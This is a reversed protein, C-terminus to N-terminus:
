LRPPSPAAYPAEGEDVSFVQQGLHLAYLGAKEKEAVESFLNKRLRQWSFSKGWDVSGDFKKNLLEGEKRYIVLGPFVFLAVFLLVAMVLLRHVNQRRKTKTQSRRFAGRIEFENAKRIESVNKDQAIDESAASLLNALTGRESVEQALSAKASAEKASSAQAAASGGANTDEVLSFDEEQEEKEGTLLSAQLSLPMAFSPMRPARLEPIADGQSQLALQESPLYEIRITNDIDGGSKMTESLMDKPHAFLLSSADETEALKEAFLKSINSGSGGGFVPVRPPQTSTKSEETRRSAEVGPLFIGPRTPESTDTRQIPEGFYAFPDDEEVPPSSAVQLPHLPAMQVPHLPTMQAPLSSPSAPQQRLASVRHVRFVHRCRVCRVRVGSPPVREDALRFRTRCQECKVIM